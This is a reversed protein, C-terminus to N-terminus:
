DPQKRQSGQSYAHQKRIPMQDAVKPIWSGLSPARQMWRLHPVGALLRWVHRTAGARGAGISGAFRGYTWLIARVDLPLAQVDLPLARVDLSLAGYMWRWRGYLGGLAAPERAICQSLHARIWNLLRFIHDAQVYRPDYPKTRVGGRSRCTRQM